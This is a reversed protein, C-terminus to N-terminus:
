PKKRFLRAGILVYDLGSNRVTRIADEPTSVNPEGHLNFSTNLVGGIGTRAKFATLIAHYEPNWDALVEQPRMTYDRPHVAAAFHQRALATTDFTIAMYPAFTKKPNDIYVPLDEARISPTFPMWFDRCKIKANLREINTFKSPNCMISRNGLARAGWEERGSCRAVIEDAALLDAVREARAAPNAFEEIDFDAALDDRAIMRAVHEDSFGRGLYLDRVPTVSQGERRALEWLAGVPLSEDGASPVVFLDTLLPHEALRKAAKVNMFVGGAVAVRGIGTVRMWHEAWRWILDETIKQVAGSIVDFREFAYLAVLRKLIQSTPVATRFVGQADIDILSALQGALRNVQDTDAYPAMGMLKFEHEDSKMGLYATTEGYIRGLSEKAGGSSLRTFAGDRFVSVSSSLGDGQGDLTLVLWDGGSSVPAFYAASAAHMAHHDLFSVKDANFGLKQVIRAQADRARNDDESRAGLASKLQRFLRRPAEPSFGGLKRLRQEKARWYYDGYRRAELGIRCLEEARTGLGDIIAIRDANQVDGGLHADVVHQLALTPFGAANKIRCLREESLLTKIVGNESYGITCNHGYHIAIAKM